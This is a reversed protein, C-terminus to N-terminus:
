NLVYSVNRSNGEDYSMPIFSLLLYASNTGMAIGIIQQFIDGRFDAFINDIVYQDHHGNKRRLVKQRKNRSWCTFHIGVM